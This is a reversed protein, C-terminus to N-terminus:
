FLSRLTALDQPGAALKLDRLGILGVAATGRSNAYLRTDAWASALGPASTDSQTEETAEERSAGVLNSGDANLVGRTELGDGLTIPTSPTLLSDSNSVNEHVLRVRGVSDISLHLNPDTLGDAAGIYAVAAAPGQATGLDVFRPHMTTARPLVTLDWRMEEVARPVSAGLTVIPSSPAGAAELQVHHLDLADSNTTSGTPYVVVKRANTPTDATYVMWVLLRGGVLPLAGHHVITGHTEDQPSTLGTSFDYRLLATHGGATDDWAAIEHIATANRREVITYLSEEGSSFTTVTQEIKRAGLGDNVFRTADEGVISSPVDTLTLGAKDSWAADSFDSSRLVLNTGARELLLCPEGDLWHWRPQSHRAHYWLGNKGLAWGPGARSFHPTQGTIPTLSLDRARWHFMLRSKRETRTRGGPAPAILPSM